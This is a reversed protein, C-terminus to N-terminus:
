KIERVFLTKVEVVTPDHQHCLQFGIRGDTFGADHTIDITKVGNLWAQIHHGKAIIYYHNWDNVNVIKAALSDPFKQVMNGRREEWLSGWYGKGMDVQYGPANDWSTPQIRICVGSNINPDGTMKILVQLEFDKYTKKTYCYHHEKEKGMAGRLVNNKLEWFNSEFDWGNVDQLLNVWGKGSPKENILRGAAPLTKRLTTDQQAFSTNQSMMLLFFVAYISFSTNKCTWKAASLNNGTSKM